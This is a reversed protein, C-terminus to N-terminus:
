EKPKVASSSIGHQKTPGIDELDIEVGLADLALLIRRLMDSEGGPMGEELAVCAESADYEWRRLVEVKQAQTLGEHAVVAEPTGFVQEPNLVAKKFDIGCASATNNM